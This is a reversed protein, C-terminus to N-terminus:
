HCTTTCERWFERSALSFATANTTTLAINFTGNGSILPTIDVSTWVGTGFTGSTSTVAEFAPANAFNITLEDWSNDVVNRVEYGSSSGSNTFIRLTARTVTGSLGQVNFRLYSSVLPSGDARLTLAKGYNTATSAENVYADAAPNFTFTNVLLTPTATFTSTPSPSPTATPTNSPTATATPTRSATATPGSTATATFTATNGPTYTPTATFAPGIETEVVLQPANAGTERSALSLETSSAGTLVLNLTGNGTLYSTVDVTTWTNATASGSSGLAGGAPPANNYNITLEGWTNDGLSNVIYGSNSGTNAFIRLTARRITTSLGQVNFRLYSRVVPSNDTRITLATGYNTAPNAAKVYADAVATFTSLQGPQTPAATFTATKTPTKTPTSTSTATKTPTSTPTRTLTPTVTPGGTNAIWTRSAPTPDINGAPDTAVVQFTHSGSFLNNYTQPSACNETEM